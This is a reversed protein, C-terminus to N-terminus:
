PFGSAKQSYKYQYSLPVKKRWNLGYLRFWIFQIVEVNILEYFNELHM